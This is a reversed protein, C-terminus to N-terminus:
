LSDRKVCEALQQRNKLKIKRECNHGWLVTFAIFRWRYDQIQIQALCCYLYSRSTSLTHLLLLLLPQRSIGMQYVWWLPTSTPHSDQCSSPVPFSVSVCLIACLCVFAFMCVCVCMGLQYWCWPVAFGYRIHQTFLLCCQPMLAEWERVFWRIWFLGSALLRGLTRPPAPLIYRAPWLVCMHVCDYVCLLFLLWSSIIAKNNNQWYCNNCYM